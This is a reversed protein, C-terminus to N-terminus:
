EFETFYKIQVLGLYPSYYKGWTPKLVVKWELTNNEGKPMKLFENLSARYWKNGNSLYIKSKAGSPSFDLLKIKVVEPEESYSNVNKSTIQIKESKDFGRDEFLYYKSINNEFDLKAKLKGKGAKEFLTKVIGQEIFIYNDFKIGGIIKGNKDEFLKILHPKQGTKSWIYWANGSFWGPLNVKIVSPYFGMSMVRIGLYNSFNEKIVEDKIRIGQGEYAGYVVLYDEKEGGFGLKGEYESIFIPNDVVEIFKDKKYKWFESKYLEGDKRVIGLLVLGDINELTYNVFDNKLVEEIKSKYLIENINNENFNLEKESEKWEFIPKFFLGTVSFDHYANTKEKDLWSNGSLSDYFNLSVLGDGTFNEAEKLYNNNFIIVTVFGLIVLIFIIILIIRVLYLFHESLNFKNKIYKFFM